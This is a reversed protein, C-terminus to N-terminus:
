IATLESEQAFTYKKTIDLSLQTARTPNPIWGLPHEIAYVQQMAEPQNSDKPVVAGIIVSPLSMASNRDFKVAQNKIFKSM